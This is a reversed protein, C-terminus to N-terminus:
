QKNSNSFARSEVSPTREDAYSKTLNDASILSENSSANTFTVSALLADIQREVAPISREKSPDGQDPARSIVFLLGGSTAPIIGIVGPLVTKWQALTEISPVRAGFYGDNSCKEDGTACSNFEETKNRSYFYFEVGIGSCRGEVTKQMMDTIQSKLADLDKVKGDASKTADLIFVVENPGGQKISNVGPFVGTFETAFKAPEICKPLHQAFIEVAPAPPVKPLADDPKPDTKKGPPAPARNANKCCAFKNADQPATESVPTGAGHTPIACIVTLWVLSASTSTLRM